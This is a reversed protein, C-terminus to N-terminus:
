YCFWWNAILDVVDGFCTRDKILVVIRWKFIVVQVSNLFVIALSGKSRGSWNQNRLSVWISISIINRATFSDSLEAINQTIAFFILGINQCFTSSITNWDTFYLLCELKLLREGTINLINLAVYINCTCRRFLYDNSLCIHKLICIIKQPTFTTLYLEYTSSQSLYKQRLNILGFLDRVQVNRCITAGINNSLAGKINIWFIFELLM